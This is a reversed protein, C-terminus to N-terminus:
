VGQTRPYVPCEYLKTYHISYSTIVGVPEQHQQAKVIKDQLSWYASECISMEQYKRQVKGVQTLMRSM